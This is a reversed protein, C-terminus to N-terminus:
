LSESAWSGAREASKKKPRPPRLRWVHKVRRWHRPKKEREEGRYFRETVTIEGWGTATLRYCCQSGPPVRGVERPIRRVSVLRLEILREIVKYFADRSTFASRTTLVARMQAGTLEGEKLAELYAFQRPTTSPVTRRM